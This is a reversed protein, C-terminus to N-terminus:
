KLVVNPKYFGGTYNRVGPLADKMVSLLNLDINLFLAGRAFNFLVGPLYAQDIFDEYTKCHDHLILFHALARALARVFRKATREDAVHTVLTVFIPPPITEDLFSKFSVPDLLLPLPRITCTVLSSELVSNLNNTIYASEQFLYYPM